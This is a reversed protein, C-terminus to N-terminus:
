QTPFVCVAQESFWTTCADCANVVCVDVNHAMEQSEGAGPHYGELNLFGLYAKSCADSSLGSANCTQCTAIWNTALNKEMALCSSGCGNCETPCALNACQKFEAPYPGYQIAMANMFLECNGPKFGVAVITYELVSDPNALRFARNGLAGGKAVKGPLGVVTKIVKKGGGVLWGVETKKLRRSPLWPSRGLM